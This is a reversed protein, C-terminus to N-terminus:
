KTPETLVVNDQVLDEKKVLKSLFHALKVPDLVKNSGYEVAQVTTIEELVIQEKTM